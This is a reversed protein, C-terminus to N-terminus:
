PILYETSTIGILGNADRVAIAVAAYAGSGFGEWTVSNESLTFYDDYHQYTIPRLAVYYSVAGEVPDWILTYSGDGEDRLARITPPPLGDAVATALALVNQTASTLYSPQIGDITDRSTHQRDREELPEIFRVAAYGAESFSLHDSYRNARDPADELVIDLNPVLFYNLFELGRAFDRSAPSAEADSFLRIQSDNIRGDPGDSSGIIDMNIMGRVQDPTIGYSRLAEVFAISGQRNVEEAAFAVFMITMRHPRQAMIRAIELLAAVGSANDNAGPAYASANNFDMTVSDYHAGIILIGAGQAYGPLQAYINTQVSTIDNHTLEFEHTLVTFGTDPNSEQIYNFENLIYDRAADIGQTASGFSNVHRTQFSQLTDIHGTLREVSVQALLPAIVSESPTAGLTAQAPLENPALTAYGITPPPTPSARPPVIAPPESTLNCALAAFTLSLLIVIWILFPQRQKM